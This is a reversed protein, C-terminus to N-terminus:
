QTGRTPQADNGKSLLRTVCAGIVAGVLTVGAFPISALLGLGRYAPDDPAVIGIVVPVVTVLAIRLLTSGRLLAYGVLGLVLPGVVVAVWFRAPMPVLRNAMYLYFYFIAALGVVVLANRRGM